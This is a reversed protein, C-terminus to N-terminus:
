FHVQRRRLTDLSQCQHVAENHVCKGIRQLPPSCRPPEGVDQWVRYGNIKSHRVQAIHSHGHRLASGYNRIVSPLMDEFAQDRGLEIRSRGLNRDLGKSSAEQAGSGLQATASM